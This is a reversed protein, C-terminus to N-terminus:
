AASPACTSRSSASSSKDFSPSQSEAYILEGDTRYTWQHYPCVLNGVAGCPEELLRSGRHRCVNRLARVEEDDDRVIILSHTGIEVTVYDGAEPIEAETAVFLWYQGFIAKMDLDYVEQSAYFASELSYGVERREVMAAIEAMNAAPATKFSM